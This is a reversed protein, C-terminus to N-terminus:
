AFNTVLVYQVTMPAYHVTMTVNWTDNAEFNHMQIAGCDLVSPYVSTTAPASDDPDYVYTDDLPRTFKHPTQREPSTIIIVDYKDENDPEILLLEFEM